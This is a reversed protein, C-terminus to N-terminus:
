PFGQYVLWRWHGQWRIESVPVLGAKIQQAWGPGTSDGLCGVLRHAITLLQQEFPQREPQSTIGCFRILLAM